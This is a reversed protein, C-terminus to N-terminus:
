TQLFADPSLNLIPLLRIQHTKGRGKQEELPVFLQHHLGMPTPPRFFFTYRERGSVNSVNFHGGGVNGGGGRGRARGRGGNGGRGRWGGRDWGRGGGGRSWGRTGSGEGVM